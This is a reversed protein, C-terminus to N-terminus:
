AALSRGAYSRPGGRPSVGATAMGGLAALVGAALHGSWIGYAVPGTMGVAAAAIQTVPVATGRSWRTMDRVVAGVRVLAGGLRAPRDVCGGPMVLITRSAYSM